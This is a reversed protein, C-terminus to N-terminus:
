LLLGGTRYPSQQPPQNINSRNPVTPIGGELRHDSM